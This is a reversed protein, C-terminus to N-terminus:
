FYAPFFGGTIFLVILIPPTLEIFCHPVVKVRREKSANSLEVSTWVEEGNIIDATIILISGSVFLVGKSWVM